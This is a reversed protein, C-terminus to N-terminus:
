SCSRILLVALTLFCLLSASGGIVSGRDRVSWGLREDYSVLAMVCKVEIERVMSVSQDRWNEKGGYYLNFFPFFVFSLGQDTDNITSIVVTDSRRWDGLKREQDIFADKHFAKASTWREFIWSNWRQCNFIFWGM